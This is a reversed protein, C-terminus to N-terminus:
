KKNRAKFVITLSKIDGARALVNIWIINEKPINGFSITKSTIGSATLTTASPILNSGSGLTTGWLVDFAIYAGSPTDIWCWCDTVHCQRTTFGIIVPDYNIVPDYITKHFTYYPSVSEIRTGSPWELWEEALNIVPTGGM